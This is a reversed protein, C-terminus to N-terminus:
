MDLTFTEIDLSTVQTMKSPNKLRLMFMCAPKAYPSQLPLAWVATQAASILITENLTQFKRVKGKCLNSAASNSIGIFKSTPSLQLVIAPGAM